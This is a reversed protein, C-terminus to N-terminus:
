IKMEIMNESIQPVIYDDGRNPSNQADNENMRNREPFNKDKKLGEYIKLGERKLSSKIIKPYVAPNKMELQKVLKM